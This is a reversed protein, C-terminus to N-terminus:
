SYDYSQLNWELHSEILEKFIIKNPDKANPADNNKKMFAKLLIPVTLVTRTNERDNTNPSINAKKDRSSVIM